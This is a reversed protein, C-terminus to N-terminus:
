RRPRPQWTERLALQAIRTLQRGDARVVYLNPSTSDSWFSIWRGDPSWSIDGRHRTLRLPSGGAASVVFIGTDDDEVRPDPGHAGYAIM